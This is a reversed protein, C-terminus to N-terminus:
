QTMREKGTRYGTLSGWVKQYTANNMFGNMNWCTAPYAQYHRANSIEEGRNATENAEFYWKIINEIMQNMSIGNQYANQDVQRHLSPDIRVNFSGKYPKDPSKGIARCTELYDDVAEHFAAEVAEPDTSDCEFSILDSVGEIKGIIVGDDM